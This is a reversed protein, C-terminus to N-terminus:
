PICFLYRSLLYLNGAAKIKAYDERLMDISDELTRKKNEAEKLSEQM